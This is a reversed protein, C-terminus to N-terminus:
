LSCHKHVTPIHQQAQLTGLESIFKAKQRSIVRSASNVYHAAVLVHVEDARHFRGGVWCTPSTWLVAEAQLQTFRQSLHIFEEGRSSIM